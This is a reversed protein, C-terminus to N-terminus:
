FHKNKPDSFVGFAVVAGGTGVLAFAAPVLPIWGGQLFVGWCVGYLVLVTTGIALGGAPIPRVYWAVVGGIAAWALIWLAEGWQPGVWLLPRDDKVASLIQSVAQAQVDLGSMKRVKSTEASYPTLFYDTANSLPDTVGILVVRDEIWDPNVKGDLVESLRVHQAITEAARYNLLVQFGRSDFQQYGGARTSLQKFVTEGLQGTTSSTTQPEIGEAALYHLAVQFGFAIDTACPDNHHPQMVMVHRRLIGDPDITVDSYGLRNEPMQPPPNVGTKNPDDEQRISCLAILRDNHQLHDLLAAHGPEKPRERFIDLGIVRPNHRELRDIAKALVGDPLPFDYRNTDEQTAEVVLLRPDAGEDPRQRMLRDYAKLEMPQLVGLLRIGITVTTVVAAVIAGGPWFRLPKDTRLPQPFRDGDLWEFIPVDGIGKLFRSGHSYLTAKEYNGHRVWGATVESLLIQNGQALAAVRAAYDVEQGIFDTGQHSPSGTHMGIRVEIPKRSPTEIPDNQHSRQVEVAWEVAQAPNAFVLFYGDGETKVVRGGYRALHAEVRQRHPLLVEELYRRNREERSSGEFQNKIATSGVLDTFVMTVVDQRSRGRREGGLEEWIPPVVAPNQCIVPLWSACPFRDELGQLQERAERIARYCSKGAAFKQLFYKLFIQAARDPVPERMVILQPFHLEELEWALGLGDCSNFIALQLGGDIAARLGYKLEAITLSDTANLYIRGREGETQSHGAFCLIDWPQEWLRDNLEHRSPEVLATLEVGPLQELTARDAEVDIGHSDGLISLIRVQGPPTRAAKAESKPASIAVEVTSYNEILDWLHWPLRLLPRCGSRVIARIEESPSFRELWKERIPRFSEETLWENLRARLKTASHSCEEWRKEISGDYTIKQPAIERTPGRPYEGPGRGHGCRRYISQWDRYHSELDTASPLRGIAEVDPSQGETSITLTAQFGRDFDGDLKLIALKTM